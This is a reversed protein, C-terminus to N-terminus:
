LTSDVDLTCSSWPIKVLQAIKLAPKEKGPTFNHLYEAEPKWTIRHHEKIMTDPHFRVTSEHNRLVKTQKDLKRDLFIEIVPEPEIKM